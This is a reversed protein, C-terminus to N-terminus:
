KFKHIIHLRSSFNCNLSAATHLAFSSNHMIEKVTKGEPMIWVIEPDIDMKKMFVSVPKLQDLSWVVFKFKACHVENWSAITDEQEPTCPLKPSVTVSSFFGAHTFITGNTELHVEKETKHCVLNLFENLSEPDQELPEGGTLIVTNIKKYNKVVVNFLQRPTYEKMPRTYTDCFSCDQSCGHFRIFLCRLGMFEGEGQWSDFISDVVLKKM